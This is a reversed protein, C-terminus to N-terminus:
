TQIDEYLEFTGSGVKLTHKSKDHCFFRFVQKGDELRYHKFRMIGHIMRVAEGKNNYIVATLRM